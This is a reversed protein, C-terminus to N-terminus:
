YPRWIASGVYLVVAFAVAVGFPVKAARPDDLTLENGPLHFTTFAKLMHWLNRATQRIRGKYIVLALAMIGAILVTAFLVSLLREPGLWAGLAGVLKWDGAGLSRVLVFPLLVGLGLVAGLLSTKVGFWGFLAANIAVGSFFGSVTLWNPIRRWRWDTFGAIVALVASFM